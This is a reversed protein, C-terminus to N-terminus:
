GERWRGRGCCIFINLYIPIRWKSNLFIKFICWVKSPYSFINHRIKWLLHAKRPQIIDGIYTMPTHLSTPQIIVLLLVQSVPRSSPLPLFYQVLTIPIFPFGDFASFFTPRPLLHYNHFHSLLCSPFLLHRLPQIQLFVTHPRDPTAQAQCLPKPTSLPVAAIWPSCKDQPFELAESEELCHWSVSVQGLVLAPIRDQPLTQTFSYGKTVGLVYSPGGLYNDVEFALSTVPQGIVTAWSARNHRYGRTQGRSWGCEDLMWRGWVEGELGECSM